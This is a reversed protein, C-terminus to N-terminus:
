VSSGPDLLARARLLAALDAVGLRALARTLTRSVEAVSLGLEYATEKPTAGATLRDIVASERAALSREGVMAPPTRALVIHRRGDAEFLDVCSWEGRLLGLWRGRTDVDEHRTRRLDAERARVLARLTELPVTAALREGIAEVRGDQTVLAADPGFGDVLAGRVRLAARMQAAARGLLGLTRPNMVPARTPIALALGHDDEAVHINFVDCAAERELDRRVDDGIEPVSLLAGGVFGARAGARYLARIAAPPLRDNFGAADLDFDAGTPVVNTRVGDATFAYTFACVGSRGRCIGHISRAVGAIYEDEPADLRDLARLLGAADLRPM